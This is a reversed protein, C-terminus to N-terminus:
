ITERRIRRQRLRCDFAVKHAPGGGVVVKAQEVHELADPVQVGDLAPTETGRILVIGNIAWRSPDLFGRLLDETRVALFSIGTQTGRTGLEPVGFIDQFGLQDAGAPFPIHIQLFDLRPCQFWPLNPYPMKLKPFSMSHGHGIALDM